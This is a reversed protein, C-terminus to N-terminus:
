PGEMTLFQNLGRLGLIQGLQIATFNPNDILRSMILEVCVPASM